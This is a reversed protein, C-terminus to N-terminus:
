KFYIVIILLRKNSLGSKKQTKLRENRITLNPPDRASM